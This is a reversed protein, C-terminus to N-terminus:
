SNSQLLGFVILMSYSLYCGTTYESVNRLQRQTMALTGTLIPIMLLLLIAFLPFESQSTTPSATVLVCVGLFSLLLTLTDFSSLGKKFLLWSFLAIFLPGINSVLSVYVLPLYKVSTYVCALM